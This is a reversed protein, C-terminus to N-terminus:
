YNSYINTYYFFSNYTISNSAYVNNNPDTFTLQYKNGTTTGYYILVPYYNNQILRVSINSSVNATASPINGYSDDTKYTITWSSNPIAITSPYDIINPSTSTSFCQPCQNINPNISIPTGNNSGICFQSISNAYLNFVWTGTVNPLFYGVTKFGWKVGTTFNLFSNTYPSPINTINMIRNNSPTINNGTKYYYGINLLATNYDFDVGSNYIKTNLGGSTIGFSGAGTTGTNSSPTYNVYGATSIGSTTWDSSTYLYANSSTVNTGDINTANPM